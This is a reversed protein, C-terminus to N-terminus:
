MKHLLPMEYKEMSGLHKSDYTVVKTFIIHYLLERSCNVLLCTKSGERGWLPISQRGWGESVSYIRYIYARSLSPCRSCDSVLSSFM